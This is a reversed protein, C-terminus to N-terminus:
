IKPRVIAVNSILDKLSNQVKNISLAIDEIEDKTKININETLDGDSMKGLVYQIRMVNKSLKKSYVYVMILVLICLM